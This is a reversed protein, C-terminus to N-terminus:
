DYAEKALVRRMIEEGDGTTAVAGKPGAFVGAGIIPTDGVRGLLMLSTGGTSLGAAFGGRGDRAVAGVTDSPGQLDRLTDQLSVPFNWFDEPRHSEWSVEKPPAEKALFFRIRKLRERARGSIPYYDPIGRLKAFATAGEGALLLHPSDIVMDAVLIPYQVNEIAAVAGFAGSDDMVAADMQITRGDLRLNSGTGANMRPDDELVQTAAIVAQRASHSETLRKMGAIAARDCGDDNDRPGGAGGHTVLAPKSTPEGNM